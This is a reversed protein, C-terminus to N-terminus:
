FWIFHVPLADCSQTVSPGKGMQARDIQSSNIALPASFDACRRHMLLCFNFNMPPRPASWYGRCGECKRRWSSASTVDQNWDSPFRLMIGNWVGIESFKSNGVDPIFRYDISLITECFSCFTFIDKWSFSELATSLSLYDFWKESTHIFRSFQGVELIRIHLTFITNCAGFISRHIFKSGFTSWFRGLADYQCDVQGPGGLRGPNWM